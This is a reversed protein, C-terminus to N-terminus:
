LGVAVAFASAVVILEAAAIRKATASRAILWEGLDFGSSRAVLMIPWVAIGRALGYAGYIAAGLLVSGSFFCALPVIYWLSFGLRSFAGCGLALGNMIAWRTPRGRYVWDKPTERRCELPRFGGPLLELAGAVVLAAAFASSIGIRADAALASGLFGIAAGVSAGALLSSASFVAGRTWRGEKTRRNV